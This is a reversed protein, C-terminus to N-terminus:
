RKVMRIETGGEHFSVEDMLENILYIGRGHNRFVNRGITPSPIAAPDFGPGPDRVIILMGRAEDCAVCLQVTKGPDNRCGHRIANALAERVAVEIEFEKGVACTLKRATELVRTVAPSISEVTGPVDIQLSIVLRDPDFDAHPRHHQM